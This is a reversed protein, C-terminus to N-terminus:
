RPPKDDQAILEAYVVLRKSYNRTGQDWVGNCTILNLQRHLTYGFIKDLPAANYAYTQLHTVAFHYQTNGASSVIIEDGVKLRRINWFIAPSGDKHDLHGALVANGVEGPAAGPAYWAVNDVHSPIGMNGNHDQGVAEILTDLQLKPIQLRIPLPKTVTLTRVISIPTAATTPMLNTLTPSLVGSSRLPISRTPSLAPAPKSRQNALPTAITPRAVPLGANFAESRAALRTWGTAGLVILVLGCFFSVRYIPQFLKLARM